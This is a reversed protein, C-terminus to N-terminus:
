QLASADGGRSLYDKKVKEMLPEITRIEEEAQNIDEINYPRQLHEIWQNKDVQLASYLRATEEITYDMSRHSRKIMQNMNKAKANKNKRDLDMRSFGKLRKKLLFFLGM